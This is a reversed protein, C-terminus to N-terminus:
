MARVVAYLRRGSFDSEDLFKNDWMGLVSFNHQTLYYELELPFLLRYAADDVLLESEGEIKWTRIRRFCQKRRDLIHRSIAVAHFDGESVRTEIRERFVESSLFRSANLLDLILLGGDKLHRRFNELSAHVDANNLNYTFTSNVCIVADFEEGLDFTRMDGHEIRLGPNQSRAYEIMPELNDIGVGSHGRGVLSALIRATRCCVDLITLSGCPSFREILKSCVEATDKDAEPYICEFLYPRRLLLNASANAM